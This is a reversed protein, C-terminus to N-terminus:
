KYKDQILQEQDKTFVFNTIIDSSIIDKINNDIKICENFISFLSYNNIEIYDIFFEETELSIFEPKPIYINFPLGLYQQEKYLLISIHYLKLINLSKIKRGFLSHKQQFDLLLKDLKLIYEYRIDSEYSYCSLLYPKIFKGLVEILRKPSFDRDISIYNNSNINNFIYIMNKIYFLKQTDNFLHCNTIIYNKIIFQNYNKYHTINFNSEFFRSFLISINFNSKKIVFYINYLNSISFPTNDWPNKIKKPEPFFDVEFSLSVNIIRILDIISFQLKIKNHIITICHEPKMLNLSTFGIDIQESLYKKTKMLCRHKFKYLANINRQAISFISLFNINLNFCPQFLYNKLVIFKYKIYERWQYNDKESPFQQSRFYINFLIHNDNYKKHENNFFYEFLIM